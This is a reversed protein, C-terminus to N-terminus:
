RVRESDIEDLLKVFPEPALDTELALRIGAKAVDEAMQDMAEVFRKRQRSLRGPQIPGRLPDGRAADSRRPTPVLTKLVGPAAAERDAVHLLAEMFYDACVSRPSARKPLPKVSRTM